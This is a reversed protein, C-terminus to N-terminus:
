LRRLRALNPRDSLQSIGNAMIVVGSNVFMGILIHATGRVLTQRLVSGRAADIFQPLLTLYLLAITPNLLSIAVGMGFTKGVGNRSMDQRDLMRPAAVLAKWALYALVVAGAARLVDLAHPVRVVLASIGFAAMLMHTVSGLAVAVVAMLGGSSGFLLSRSIVYVMNPGPILVMGLAILSFATLTGGSVM